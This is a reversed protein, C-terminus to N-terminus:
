KKRSMDEKILDIIYAQRNPQKDLHEIVDAQKSKNINVVIRRINEKRWKADNGMDRGMNEGGSVM